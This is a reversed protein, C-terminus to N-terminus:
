AATRDSTVVTAQSTARLQTLIYDAARETAGPKAYKVALRDMSDVKRQYLEHDNFWRVVWGAMQLSPDGTTMYEPMVSEEADSADPNVPGWTTKDINPTAILNVLTIFKTRLMIAQAVMAWRKLKYVIVTPKRHHLLELSVSGSCALCVTASKMLEPTKDVHVEFPLGIEAVLEEAVIKQQENFSAIAVRCKTQAVVQKAANLLIPLVLAVEQNRSGPLLTLLPYHDSSLEAMFETNYQQGAIQDFYPHGVYTAHCNRKAFWEVEFPLKCIVHDVFKQIKKVRWPAWAWMQPAGYYFVPIGHRKAKRAIWWNFGPYDILVVADVQNEAFYDNAEGVLRLFLRINKLAGGIFMVALSTLDFHIDCGAEKMKPGGFGVFEYSPEESKLHRILNSGHLDGSPEGVSFFIRMPGGKALNQLESIIGFGLGHPYILIWDTDTTEFWRGPLM